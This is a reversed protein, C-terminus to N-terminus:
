FEGNFHSIIAAALMLSVSNQRMRVLDPFPPSIRAYATFYLILDDVERTIM